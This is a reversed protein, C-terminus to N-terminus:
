RATSGEQADPPGPRVMATLHGIRLFGAARYLAVAAANAEPTVVWFGIAGADALM